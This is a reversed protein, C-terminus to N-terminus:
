KTLNLNLLISDVLFAFPILPIEDVLDSFGQLISPLGYHNQRKEEDELKTVITM